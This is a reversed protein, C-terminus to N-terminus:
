SPQEMSVEKVQHYLWRVFRNAVAAVIVCTPKGSSRLGSALASWRPDHRILRHAAEVLTSRLLRSGAKILGADAQRQGSSANRPSLGCYRSLQKGSRFRDFQGIEARLVWSTVEGVGPLARLRSALADGALLERLRSAALAVQAAVQELDDLHRDLVWRTPEPLPVARAWAWYAKTWRSGRPASVRHERLLAAVRQKVARRRDVLQQRYRVVTRLQRVAEPALWVRPLYGVRILDALLRADAWDSKDPSQKIRAVYGPHAQHVSWGFRNALEDALHATGTSAELAAQVADGHRAAIRAVADADNPCPRNVLIAGSADMVCVQIQDKHYDLGVFVTLKSM